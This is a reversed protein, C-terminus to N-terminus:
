FPLIFLENYGEKNCVTEIPPYPDNQIENLKKCARNMASKPADKKIFVLGEETIEWYKYKRAKM